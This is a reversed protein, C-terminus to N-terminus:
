SKFLKVKFRLNMIHKTKKQKHTKLFFMADVKKDSMQPLKLRIEM